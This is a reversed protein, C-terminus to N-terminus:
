PCGTLSGIWQRVLAVGEGDLVSTGIQPMRGEQLAMMRLTLLSKDPQGPILRLAGPVGLDGKEPPQNCLGMKELPTEFRLDIDEFSGGPRHCIACNV